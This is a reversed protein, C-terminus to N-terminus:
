FAHKHTKKWSRGMLLLHNQGTQHEWFVTSSDVLTERETKPCVFQPLSIIFHKPDFSQWHHGLLSPHVNGSLSQRSEFFRPPTPPHPANITTWAAVVGGFMCAPFIINLLPINEPSSSVIVPALLSGPNQDCKLIKDCWDHETLLLQNCVLRSWDIMLWWNTEIVFCVGILERIVFWM